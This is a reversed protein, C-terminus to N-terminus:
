RRSITEDREFDIDRWTPRLSNLSHARSLLWQPSGLVAFCGGLSPGGLSPHACPAQPLAPPAFEPPLFDVAADLRATGHWQESSPDSGALWM